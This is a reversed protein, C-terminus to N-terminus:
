RRDCVECERSDCPISVLDSAIARVSGSYYGKIGRDGQVVRTITFRTNPKLGISLHRVDKTYYTEGLHIDEQKM